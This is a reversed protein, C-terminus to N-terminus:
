VSSNSKIPQFQLSITCTPNLSKKKTLFWSGAHSCTHQKVPSVSVHASSTTGFSNQLLDPTLTRLPGPARTRTPDTWLHCICSAKRGCFRLIIQGGASLSPHLPPAQSHPASEGLHSDGPFEPGTLTLSWKPERPTRGGWGRNKKLLYLCTVIVM